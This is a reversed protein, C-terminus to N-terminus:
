LKVVSWNDHFILRLTKIFNYIYISVIIVEELEFPTLITELTAAFDSVSAWQNGGLGGFGVCLANM